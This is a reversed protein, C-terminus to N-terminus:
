DDSDPPDSDLPLTVTVTTTVSGTANTSPVPLAKRVSMGFPQAESPGLSGYHKQVLEQLEKVFSDAKDNATAM